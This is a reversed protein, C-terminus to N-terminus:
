TLMACLAVVLVVLAVVIVAAAVTQVPRGYVAIVAAAEVMAALRAVIVVAVRALVRNPHEGPTHARKPTKM